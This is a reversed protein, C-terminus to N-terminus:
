TLCQAWRPPLCRQCPSCTQNHERVAQLFRSVTVDFGLDIVEFGAFEMFLTILNKGIDHIDGEVTGIIIRQNQASHRPIPKVVQLGAKIARSALLVDPVSFDDGEFDDTARKIAPIIVARLIEEASM